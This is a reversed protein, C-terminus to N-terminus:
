KFNDKYNEIERFGKEIERKPTKNTKKTFYHLLVIDNEHWTFFLIRNKGPRLEWLEDKIHKVYPEGIMTGDRKLMSICLMIQKLKIRDSKSSISKRDLYNIYDLLESEGNNDAYFIINFM